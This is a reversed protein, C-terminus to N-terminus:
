RMIIRVRVVNAMSVVPSIVSKWMALTNECVSLFLQLDRKVLTGGDPLADPRYTLTVFISDEHLSAEHM